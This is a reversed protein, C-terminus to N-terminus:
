KFKYVQKSYKTKNKDKPQRLRAFAFLNLFGFFVSLIGTVSSIVFALTPADEPNGGLSKVYDLTHYYAITAAFATIFGIIVSALIVCDGFVIEEDINCHRPDKYLTM